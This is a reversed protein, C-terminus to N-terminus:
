SGHNLSGCLAKGLGWYAPIAAKGVVAAYQQAVEKPTPGALFYFDLIGGIVNYELKSGTRDGDLKVDMGNSSLLFVGHTGSKRQEFYIPHAGYLNTHEPVGYADRNWLTRTLNRNPLRFNETHEGLGYINPDPNLNIALRLYQEEFVFANGATDFLKEGTSKRSVTFAFPDQHLKFVLESTNHANGNKSPTPRPLTFEPVQYREGKPDAIKVHLREEARILTLLPSHVQPYPVFQHRLKCGLAPNALRPRLNRM